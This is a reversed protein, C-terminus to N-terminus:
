QAPPWAEAPLTAILGDTDLPKESSAANYAALWVSDRWAVFATAEAAWKPVSSTAYSALAFSDRYGRARAHSDLHDQVAENLRTQAEARAQETKMEATVLQSWDIQAM